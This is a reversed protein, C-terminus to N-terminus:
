SKATVAQHKSYNFCVFILLVVSIGVIDALWDVPCAVRNVLPQSLEDVAGLISIAFFLIAASLLSLRTRLSLIFSFTIAGYAVIHEIKDLGIVLLRKPM